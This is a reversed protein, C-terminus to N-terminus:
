LAVGLHEDVLETLEDVSEVVGFKAYAIEGDGDILALYPLGLVKAFEDTEQLDGGPDAVSPYTAGTERALELASGPFPDTFDVGLLPVQDGYQEHFDQLVPMEQKCETCWSAWFSLAMPGKLSSLDVATGGGLCPVTVSPLAGGGPGPRCDEMGVEDKLAVLEPTDVKVKSPGPGPGPMFDEDPDTQGADDCGALLFLALTGAVLARRM